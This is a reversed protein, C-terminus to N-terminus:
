SLSSSSGAFTDTSGGPLSRRYIVKVAGFRIVNGDALSAEQKLPEADIFTGNKSALDTLKAQDGCVTVVAHRRSVSKSDLFVEATPERGVLNEGECLLCERNGYLLVHGFSVATNIADVEQVTAAFSYGTGHVTRIIAREDDGIARRIERILVPLNAEVVFTSPWLHDYLERRSVVRGRETILISLLDLAKPSLHIVCGGRRLQRASTDLSVDGFEYRMVTNPLHLYQLDQLPV